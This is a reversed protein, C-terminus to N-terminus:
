GSLSFGPRLHSTGDKRKWEQRDLNPVVFTVRINEDSLVITIDSAAPVFVTVDVAMVTANHSDRQRVFRSPILM